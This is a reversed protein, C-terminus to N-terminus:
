HGLGVAFSVRTTEILSTLGVPCERKGALFMAFTRLAELHGKDQVSASWGKVRAGHVQLNKYDDLVLVKGDAYVEMYEKGFDPAGLATYLLTAVSGDAYRLTATVNDGALVHETKPAIATVSVEAVPADILYQFLDIVHCAEGIIRGGGEETQTWHDPPLYGANMRYFIMLPNQRGSIIEKARRAAPSFRRNFGVM